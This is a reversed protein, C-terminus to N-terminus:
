LGYQRAKVLYARRIYNQEFYFVRLAEPTDPRVMVDMTARTIHYEDKHNLSYNFVFLAVM